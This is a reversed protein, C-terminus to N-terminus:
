QVTVSGTLSPNFHDHYKYVGAKPFTLSKSEGPKMPGLNLPPYDTHVPHPDSNVTHNVSDDNTWMVAEGAKITIDQPTFGVASIKVMNKGMAAESGSPSASSSEMPTPQETVTNPSTSVPAASKQSKYFYWGGLAILIVVIAITINRSSM